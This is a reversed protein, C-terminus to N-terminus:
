SNRLLRYVIGRIKGPVLSMSVSLIIGLFMEMRNLYGIRFMEKRLRIFAKAQELGGRRVYTENSIRMYVLIEPINTVIYYQSLMYIWLAYDELRNFNEPYGGLKKLVSTKMMVTPHNLPSRYKAFKKIKEINEPVKRISSLNQLNGTFERVYGGVIDPSNSSDQFCKIQKEFRDQRSIDDADVRAILDCHVLRLGDNLSGALGKNENNQLTIINLCTRYKEVTDYLESTLMGDFVIVVENARVTQNKLSELSARLYNPDDSHYISMLVSINFKSMKHVRKKM